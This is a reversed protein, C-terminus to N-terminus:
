KFWNNLIELLIKRVVVMGTATFFIMGSIGVCYNFTTPNAHIFRVCAGLLVVIVAIALLTISLCTVQGLVSKQRWNLDMCLCMTSTSEPYPNQPSIRRGTETAM